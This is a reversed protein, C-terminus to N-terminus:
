TLGMVEAAEGLAFGDLRVLVFAERRRQPLDGLAREFAQRLEGFTVDEVPTLVRGAEHAVDPETRSRVEHHRLQLLSLNRAIRYLYAEVSGRSRWRTRHEWVRVFVEQAVDKAEDTSRLLSSAYRVLRSWYRAMLQELAEADGSRVQVMLDTASVASDRPDPASEARLRSEPDLVLERDRNGPERRQSM